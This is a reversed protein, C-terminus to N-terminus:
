GKNEIKIHLGEMVALAKEHIDEDPSATARADIFIHADPLAAKAIVANALVCINSVLGCLEIEEYRKAELHNGLALSPFTTKEFIREDARKVERIGPALEHGKTGKICHEVPLNKGEETELYDEDHTDLTYIVDHEEKRYARIKEQVVPVITKAKPFGLAGDIFDNQMDVVILCKKPM